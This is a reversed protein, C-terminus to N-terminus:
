GSRLSRPIQLPKGWEKSLDQWTPNVSRILAIKKARSWKKIQKERNIINNIYESTEYYVLRNIKYRKTFGEILGEKHDKTRKVINNCMGTYFNLSRSAMIYVFYQKERKLQLDRAASPIVFEFVPRL